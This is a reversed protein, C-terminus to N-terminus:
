GATASRMEELEELSVTAGDVRRPLGEGYVFFMITDPHEKDIPNVKNEIEIQVKEDMPDKGARIAEQFGFIREREIETCFKYNPDIWILKTYEGRRRTRCLRDVEANYTALGEEFATAIAERIDEPETLDLVIIDPVLAHACRLLSESYRLTEGLPRYYYYWNNLNTWFETEKTTGESLGRRTDEILCWRAIKKDLRESSFHRARQKATGPLVYQKPKWGRKVAAYYAQLLEAGDTRFHTLSPYAFGAARSGDIKKGKWTLKANRFTDHGGTNQLWKECVFAVFAEPDEHGEGHLSDALELLGPPDTSNKRRYHVSKRFDRPSGVEMSTRQLAVRPSYRQQVIYQYVKLMRLVMYDTRNNCHAYDEDGEAYEPADYCGFMTESM